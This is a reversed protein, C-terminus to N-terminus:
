GHKKPHTHTKKPKPKPPAAFVLRRHRTVSGTATQLVATAQVTLRARSELARVGASTLRLHLKALGSRRFRDDARALVVPSANGVPVSRWQVEVSSALASAFPLTLSGALALTQRSPHHAPLLDAYMAAVVGPLTIGTVVDGEDDAALCVATSM